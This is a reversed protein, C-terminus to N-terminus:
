SNGCAFEQMNDCVAFVHSADVCTAGQTRSLLHSSRMRIMRNRMRSRKVEGEAQGDSGGSAESDKVHDEGGAQGDSRGSAKSSAGGKFRVEQSLPARDHPM